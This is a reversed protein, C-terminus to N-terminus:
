YKKSKIYRTCIYTTYNNPHKVIHLQYKTLLEINETSVQKFKCGNWMFEFILIYDCLQDYLLVVCDDFTMFLLPEDM